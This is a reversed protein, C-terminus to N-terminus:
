VVGVAALVRTNKMSLLARWHWCVYAWGCGAAAVAIGAAGVCVQIHGRPVGLPRLACGRQRVGIISAVVVGGNMRRFGCGMVFAGAIIGTVGEDGLDGSKYHVCTALLSGVGTGRRRM